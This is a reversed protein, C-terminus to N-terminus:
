WMNDLIYNGSKGNHKIGSHGTTDVPTLRLGISINDTKYNPLAAAIEAITLRTKNRSITQQIAFNNWMAYWEIGWKSIDAPTVGAPISKYDVTFDYYTSPSTVVGHRNWTIRNLIIENLYTGVGWKAMISQVNATDTM